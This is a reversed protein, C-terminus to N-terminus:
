RGKKGITGSDQGEFLGSGQHPVEEREPLTSIITGTKVLILWGVVLVVFENDRKNTGNINEMGM